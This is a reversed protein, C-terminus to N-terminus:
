ASKGTTLYATPADVARGVLQQQLGRQIAIDRQRRRMIQFRHRDHQFVFGQASAPPLAHGAYGCAM